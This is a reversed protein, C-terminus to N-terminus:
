VVRASDREPVSVSFVRMGELLYMTAGAAYASQPKLVRGKPTVIVVRQSRRRGLDVLRFTDRDGYAGRFLARGSGIAFCRSGQVPSRGIARAAGRRDLRVVHFDPYIYACVGGGPLETLAYCDMCLAPCRPSNYGRLLRGRADLLAIGSGEPPRNGFVEDGYATWIRGASAVVVHLVLDGLPLRRLINGSADVVVGNPADGRRRRGIALLYGGEPLPRADSFNERTPKLHTACVRGEGIRYISYRVPYRSRTQFCTIDEPRRYEPIRDAALATLTGDLAVSWSLLKRGVIVNSLDAVPAAVLVRPM